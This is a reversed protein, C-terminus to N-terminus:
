TTVELGVSCYTTHVKQLTLFLDVTSKLIIKLHV